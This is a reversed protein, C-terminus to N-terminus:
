ANSGEDWGPDDVNTLRWGNTINPSGTMHFVVEGVVLWHGAVAM